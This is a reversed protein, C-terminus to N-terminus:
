SGVFPARRVWTDDDLQDLMFAALLATDVRMGQPDQDDARLSGGIGTKILPPRVTTWARDSRALAALELEKGPIVVPAVSRLLLRLLRRGWGYPERGFRTATSAVNIIRSVGAARMAAILRDMARGFDEPTLETKRNPPPGITSLVADVGELTRRVADPDMYDGRVVVAEEPLTDGGIERRSLIRMAHGRAAAQRVLERGLLGTAGFVALKM